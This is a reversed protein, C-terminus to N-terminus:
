LPRGGIRRCRALPDSAALLGEARPESSSWASWARTWCSGRSSFRPEPRKRLCRGEVCFRGRVARGGRTEDV